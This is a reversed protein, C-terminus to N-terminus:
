SHDGSHNSHLFLSRALQLEGHLLAFPGYLRASPILSPATPEGVVLALRAESDELGLARLVDVVVALDTM